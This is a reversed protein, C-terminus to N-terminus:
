VNKWKKNEQNINNTTEIRDLDIDIFLPIAEPGRKM